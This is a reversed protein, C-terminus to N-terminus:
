GGGGGGCCGGSKGVMVNRVIKIVQRDYVRGSGRSTLRRGVLSRM